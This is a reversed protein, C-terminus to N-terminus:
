KGLANLVQNVDSDIIGQIETQSDSAGTSEVILTAVNEYFADRAQHQIKLFDKIDVPLAPERRTKSNMRAMQTDVSTKLYVVFEKSLLERCRESSVVGEELLVVVNEQTSYHSIIDAQCQNFAAEGAEGLIERMSKGLYSEISPNADILRWELKKALHESFVFRGAGWHGVVYIRKTM